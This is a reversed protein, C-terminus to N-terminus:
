TSISRLSRNEAGLEKILEPSAKEETPSVIGSSGQKEGLALLHKWYGLCGGKTFAITFGDARTAM